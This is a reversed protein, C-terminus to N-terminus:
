KLLLIRQSDSFSGAVLRVTYLGSPQEVGRNSTADWTISYRGPARLENDILLRVVNRRYNIVSVMVNTERPLTFCITPCTDLPNSPNFVEPEVSLGFEKPLRTDIKVAASPATASDGIADIRYHHTGHSDLSSDICSSTGLPVTAITELSDKSRGRLVRYCTLRSMKPLRITHATTDNVSPQWRLRVTRGALEAQLNRVPFLKNGASRADLVLFVVLFAPGTLRVFNLMKKTDM